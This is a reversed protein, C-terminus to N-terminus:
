LGHIGPMLLDLLILSLMDRNQRVMELAQEGDAASITESDESLTQAQLERNIMEDDVILILRKGNVSHFKEHTKPM